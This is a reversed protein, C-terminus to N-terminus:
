RIIKNLITKQQQQKEIIKGTKSKNNNLTDLIYTVKLM